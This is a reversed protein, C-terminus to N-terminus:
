GNVVELKKEPLVIKNNKKGSDDITIRSLMNQATSLMIQVAEVPNFSSYDVKMIAKKDKDIEITITDM